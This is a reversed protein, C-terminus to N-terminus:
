MLANLENLVSGVSGYTDPPLTVAQPPLNQSTITLVLMNENMVNGPWVNFMQTPMVMDVLAVAWEDSADLLLPTPLNLSFQGPTQTSGIHLYCESEDTRAM